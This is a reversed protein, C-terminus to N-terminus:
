ILDHTHLVVERYSLDKKHFWQHFFSLTLPSAYLLDMTDKNCIVLCMIQLTGDENHWPSYNNSLDMTKQQKHELSRSVQCRIEAFKQM